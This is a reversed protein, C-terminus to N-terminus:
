HTPISSFFVSPAHCFSVLLFPLGRHVLAAARWWAQYIEDQCPCRGGEEVRGTASLGERQTARSFMESSREWCPIGVSVRDRGAAEREERKRQSAINGEGKGARMKTVKQRCPVPPCFHAVNTTVCFPGRTMGHASIMFLVPCCQQGRTAEQGLNGERAAGRARREGRTRETDFRGGSQAPPPIHTEGRETGDATGIVNATRRCNPQPQLLHSRTRGRAQHKKHCTGKPRATGQITAQTFGLYFRPSLGVDGHDADSAYCLM